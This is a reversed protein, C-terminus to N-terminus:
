VPGPVLGWVERVLLTRKAVSGVPRDSSVTRNSFLQKKRFNM